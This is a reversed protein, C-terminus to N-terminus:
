CVVHVLNMGKRRDDGYSPHLQCCPKAQYPQVTYHHAFLKTAPTQVRSNKQGTNAFLFICCM